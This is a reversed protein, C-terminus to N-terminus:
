YTKLQDRKYLSYRTKVEYSQVEVKWWGRLSQTATTNRCEIYPYTLPRLRRPTNLADRSLIGVEKRRKFSGTIRRLSREDKVYVFTNKTRFCPPTSCSKGQRIIAAAYELSSGAVTITEIKWSDRSRIWPSTDRALQRAKARVRLKSGEYLCTERYLAFIQRGKPRRM